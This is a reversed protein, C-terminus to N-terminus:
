QPTLNVGATSWQLRAGQGSGDDGIRYSLHGVLANNAGRLELIAYGPPTNVNIAAATFVLTRAGVSGTTTDQVAIHSDAVIRYPVANGYQDQVANAPVVAPSTLLPNSQMRYTPSAAGPVVTAQVSDTVLTGTATSLAVQAKDTGALSDAHFTFYAKGTADSNACLVEATLAHKPDPTRACVVQNPVGVVATQAYARRPLVGDLIRLAVSGNALRIVQAVVPAPLPAQPAAQVVQNNGAVVGAHLPGDAIPAASGGGCAALTTVLLALGINGVFLFPTAVLNRM